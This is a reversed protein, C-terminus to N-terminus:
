SDDPVWNILVANSGERLAKLTEVWIEYNLLVFLIADPKTSQVTALLKRNLQQFDMYCTKNWSEFLLTEHGLRSLAPLFNVYEYSEGRGTAGYNHQGFVCLVKLQFDARSVENPSSSFDM